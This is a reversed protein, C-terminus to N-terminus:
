GSFGESSTEDWDAIEAKVGGSMGDGEDACVAEERDLVGTGVMGPIRAVTEAVNGGATGLAQIEVVGTSGNDVCGGESGAFGLGDRSIGPDVDACAGDASDDERETGIGM